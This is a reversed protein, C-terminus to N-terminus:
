GVRGSFVTYVIFGVYDGLDLICDRSAPDSLNQFCQWDDASVEPAAQGWLMDFTMGIAARTPRDLPGHLTVTHTHAALDNLGAARLWSFARTYHLQPDAGEIFPYHLGSAAALRAELLPFGPLLRQGSWFALAVIGGPAVVRAFERMLGAPDSTIGDGGATSPYAGDACWLWDFANDNFPLAHLDGQQFSVRATMEQAQAIQEAHALFNAAIDLGAVRGEPGITEALWLTHNGLGCPVDLGRSGPKLSLGEIAARIAPATLANALAMRKFDSWQEHVDM